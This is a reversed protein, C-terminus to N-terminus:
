AEEKKEGTTGPPLLLKDYTYGLAAVIDPAGLQVLFQGQRGMGVPHLQPQCRRIVVTLALHRLDPRQDGLPHVEQDYRGVLAVGDRRGDLFGEIGTNRDDQEVPLDIGVLVGGEDPRVIHPDAPDQAIVQGVDQAALAPYHLDLSEPLRRRGGLPVLAKRLRQRRMGAQFQDSGVVPVPQLFAASAHHRPPHFFPKCEIRDETLIVPHGPAGPFGESLRVPQRQQAHVGQRFSPKLIDQVANQRSSVDIRGPAVQHHFQRHIDERPVLVGPLRHQFRGEHVAVIRRHDEHLLMLDRVLPLHHLFHAGLQVTGQGLVIRLPQDQVQEDAQGGQQNQQKGDREKEVVAHPAEIRLQFPPVLLQVQQGPFQLLGGVRLQLEEGGDAVLEPRRQGQDGAGQLMDHVCGAQVRFAPSRQPDGPLIDINEEPQHVADQIEPLDLVSLHGQSHGAEVQRQGHLLPHQSELSAVQVILSRFRQHHLGIHVQRFPHQEVEQAVSELM